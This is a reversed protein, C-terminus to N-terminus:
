KRLMSAAAGNFGLLEPVRMDAARQYKRLMSAAAGNFCNAATFGGM